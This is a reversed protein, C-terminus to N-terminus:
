YCNLTEMHKDIWKISRELADRQNKPHEFIHGEDLYQIYETEVGQAKIYDYLTKVSNYADVGGLEPNGMLFLTPTRVGKWRLFTNGSVKQFLKLEELWGEKSVIARFRHTMSLLRNVRRGGASHGIIAIRNPDIVEQNALFDIGAEIDRIDCNIIENESIGDWNIERSGFSASSRFEPIFVAYGRAAWMHWELPSNVLIGGMLYISAGEGGGHIDVVLPYSIEKQYDLPMVLLGYLNTPYDPTRWEIERVESLAMDQPVAPICIQENINDETSSAVGIIKNSHADQGTWAILEGDPSISYSEINLPANTIQKLKRTDTDIKYIQKYAGYSRLFYIFRGDPSWQPSFVKMEHTLREIPQLIDKKKSTYNVVCLSPMFNFQPNDVDSTYAIFNGDSSLVPSLYQQLGAFEAVIHIQGNHINLSQIWTYNDEEKFFFGIREKMFLLEEGNQFWSLFRINEQISAVERFKGTMVDIVNIKSQPPVRKEWYAFPSRYILAIQKSDPSWTFEFSFFFGEGLGESFFTLQKLNKGEKDMLWLQKEEKKGRVFVMWQGNPSPTPYTGEGLLKPKKTLLDCIQITWKQKNGIPPFDYLITKNNLWKISLSGWKKKSM